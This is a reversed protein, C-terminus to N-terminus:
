CFVCFTLGLSFLFVVFRFRFGCMFKLVAWTDAYWQACINYVVCCFVTIIIKGRLRWVNLCWLEVGPPADYFHLLHWWLLIPFQVTEMWYEKYSVTVCFFLNLTNSSATICTFLNFLHLLIDILLGVYGIFQVLKVACTHWSVDSCQM